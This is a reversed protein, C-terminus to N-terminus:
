KSASAERMRNVSSGCAYNHRGKGNGNRHQQKNENEIGSSEWGWEPTLLRHADRLLLRLGRGAHEKGRSM